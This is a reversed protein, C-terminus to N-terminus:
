INAPALILAVPVTSTLAEFLVWCIASPFAAAAPRMPAPAARASADESVVIRAITEELSRSAFARLMVAASIESFLASVEAPEPPRTLPEAASGIVLVVASTLALISRSACTVSLPSRPERDIEASWSAKGLVLTRVPLRLKIPPVPATAIFLTVLSTKVLIPSPDVTNALFMRSPAVFKSSFRATSPVLMSPSAPPKALPAPALLSIETSKSVMISNPLEDFTLTVSRFPSNIATAKLSRRATSSTAKKVAPASEPAAADVFNFVVFLRASIRIPLSAVTVLLPSM